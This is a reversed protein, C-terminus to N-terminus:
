DIELVQRLRGRHQDKFPSSIMELQKLMKREKIRKISKDSFFFSKNSSRFRWKKYGANLYCHHRKEYEARPFPKRHELLVFLETGAAERNRLMLIALWFDCDSTMPVRHKVLLFSVTGCFLSRASILTKHSLSCALRSNSIWQWGEMHWM